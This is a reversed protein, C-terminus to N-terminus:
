GRRLSQPEGYCADWYRQRRERSWQAMRKDRSDPDPRLTSELSRVPPPKRFLRALLKM